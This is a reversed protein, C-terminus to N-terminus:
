TPTQLSTPECKRKLWHGKRTRNVHKCTHIDLSINKRVWRGPGTQPHASHPHLTLLGGGGAKHLAAGELVKSHRPWACPSEGAHVDGWRSRLGFVSCGPLGMRPGWRSYQLVANSLGPHFDSYQVICCAVSTMGFYLSQQSCTKHAIMYNRNYGRSLPWWDMKFGIERITKLM